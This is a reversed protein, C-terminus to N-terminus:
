EVRLIWKVLGFIGFLVRDGYVGAMIIGAWWGVMYGRVDLYSKDHIRWDEIWQYFICLILWLTALIAYRWDVTVALMAFYGIGIGHPTHTIWRWTKSDRLKM